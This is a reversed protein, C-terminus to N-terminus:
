FWVVFKTKLECLSKGELIFEMGRNIERFGSSKIMGSARAASPAATTAPWASV